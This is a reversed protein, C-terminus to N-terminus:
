SASTADMVGIAVLFDKLTTIVAVLWNAWKVLFSVAQNADDPTIGVRM